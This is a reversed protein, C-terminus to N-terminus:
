LLTLKYKMLKRGSDRCAFKLTVTYSFWGTIIYLAAIVRETKKFLFLLYQDDKLIGVTGSKDLIQLAREIQSYRKPNMPLYALFQAHFM